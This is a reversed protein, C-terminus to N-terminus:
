QLVISSTHSKKGDMLQIEYNGEPLGSLDVQNLGKVVSRRLISKGSLDFLHMEELDAGNEIFLVDQAPVPFLKVQGKELNLLSLGKVTLEMEDTSTCSRSDTLSLTYTQNAAGVTATPNALTADDLGTAPSWAYAYPTTGGSAVGALTDGLKVDTGQPEDIDVGADAMLETPQNTVITKSFSAQSYASGGILCGM